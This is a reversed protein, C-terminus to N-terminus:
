FKRGKDTAPLYWYSKTTALRYYKEENQRYDTISEIIERMM